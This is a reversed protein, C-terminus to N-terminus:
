KLHGWMAGITITETGTLSVLFPCVAGLSNFYTCFTHLRIGFNNKTALATILLNPELALFTHKIKKSDM